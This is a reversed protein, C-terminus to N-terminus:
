ILKLLLLAILFIVTILAGAVIMIKRTERAREWDRSVVPM